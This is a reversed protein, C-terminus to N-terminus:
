HEDGIQSKLALSKLLFVQSIAIEDGKNLGSVVEVRGGQRLGTEIATAHWQDGELKFVTSNGDMLVVSTEPVSLLPKTEDIQIAVNVFQGPHLQDGVNVAEIRVSRTRTAEELSHYAQIVRGKIAHTEDIYIRAPAGIDISSSQEAGLQAEVWINTEDSITFLSKGQEVFEGVIFEEGVITGDQPSLLTFTGNAPTDNNGNMMQVIQPLTMGFAEVRSKAQQAAVQAEIFRRESVIDKGLNSVRQWERNAVILNGQAEAMEVSSLTVLPQYLTVSDGLRVHRSVVQASIRPTILSTRYLDLMVEGPVQSERSLVQERVFATNIGKAQRESANMTLAEGEHELEESAHEDTQSAAPDSYYGYSQYILICVALVSVIKLLSKTNKSM